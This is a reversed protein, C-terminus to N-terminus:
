RTIVRRRSDRRRPRLLLGAALVLAGPAMGSSACGARSVPAEVGPASSPQTWSPAADGLLNAATTASQALWPGLQVVSSYIPTECRAAARSAVGILRGDVDLAPGGSDGGCIGGSGQWERSEVDPVGCGTGVCDVFLGDRRRRLGFGAGTDDAAGFGVASYEEGKIAASTVRPELLRAEDDAFPRALLLLAADNGCFGGDGPAVWLERVAIRAAPQEGDSGLAVNVEAAPAAGDFWTNGCVVGEVDRSHFSSVCHRATLVLNRGIASGSCRRSTGERRVFVVGTSAADLDGGSIAQALREVGRDEPTPAGCGALCLAAATLWRM